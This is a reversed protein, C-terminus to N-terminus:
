ALGRRRLLFMRLQGYNKAMETIGVYECAYKEAYELQLAAAFTETIYVCGPPTVPEIRAARSVHAGFFNTRKLVPDEGAFVPGLHGGLRLALTSPLGLADYDLEALAQQLDLGCDAAHHARKFVLYLGDGWTNSFLVREQHCEIVKAIAGMVGGVFRPLQSDTLKSFGKIDGFLMARARREHNSVGDAAVLPAALGLNGGEPRIVRYERGLRQWLAVDYATGAGGAAAAGDWVALQVLRSFTHQARLVALGMAYRSVYLFLKDDGLYADETAYRISEASAACREFRKVWGEGCSRVSVDVFEGLAFPLFVNLKAGTRLLAEAFLIDAGGALSGYGFGAGLEELARDIEAAVQHEASAPFRGPVGPPSIRHGTYYVICGPRLADLWGPDIGRALCIVQLQHATSALMALDGPNAARAMPLTQAAGAADGAVLLAEARTAWHWYAAEGDGPTAQDLRALVERALAEARERQGALLFLSAANIAPYSDGVDRYIAEYLGGADAMAATRREPRAAYAQDKMLRAHLTRTDTDSALGLEFARYRDIALETAGARALALVARHKLARDGPCAALGQLGTDYARFFEGQKEFARVRALWDAASPPADSQPPPAAAQVVNM